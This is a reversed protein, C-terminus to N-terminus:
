IEKQAEKYRKIALALVLADAKHESLDFEKEIEKSIKMMAKKYEKNVLVIKNRIEKQEGMKPHKLKKYQEKLPILLKDFEETIVTISKKYVSLRDESCINFKQMIYMQVETKLCNGPLGVLKRASTAMLLLPEKKNKEYYYFMLSGSLRLADKAGKANLGFYVDEICIENEGELFIGLGQITEIIRHWTSQKVDPEIEHIVLIKGSEDLIALGTKNLSLDIGIYKM